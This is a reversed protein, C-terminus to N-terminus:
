RDRVQLKDVIEYAQSLKTDRIEAETTVKSSEQTYAANIGLEPKVSGGAVNFFSSTASLGLNGGINFGQKNGVQLSYEKRKTDDRSKKSTINFEDYWDRPKKAEESEEGHRSAESHNGHSKCDIDVVTRSVETPEGITGDAKYSVHRWFARLEDLSSGMVFIHEGRKRRVLREVHPTRHYEDVNVLGEAKQAATTASMGMLKGLQASLAVVQQAM